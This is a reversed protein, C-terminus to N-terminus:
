TTAGIMDGPGLLKRGWNPSRAMCANRADEWLPPQMECPAWTEANLDRNLAM